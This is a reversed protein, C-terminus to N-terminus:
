VCPHNKALTLKKGNIKSRGFLWCCCFLACLRQQTYVRNSASTRSLISPFQAAQQVDGCTYLRLLPSVMAHVAACARECGLLICFLCNRYEPISIKSSPFHLCSPVQAARSSSSVIIRRLNQAHQSHVCINSMRRCKNRINSSFVPSRGPVRRGFVIRFTKPKIACGFRNHLKHGHRQYVGCRSLM